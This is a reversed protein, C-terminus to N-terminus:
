VVESSIGSLRMYLIEHGDDSDLTYMPNSGKTYGWVGDAPIQTFKSYFNVFTLDDGEYHEHTYERSDANYTFVNRYVRDLSYLREIGTNFQYGSIGGQIPVHILSTNPTGTAKYVFATLIDEERQYFFGGKDKNTHFRLRNSQVRNIDFPQDKPLLGHDKWVIEFKFSTNAPPFTVNEYIQLVTRLKPNFRVNPDNVIKLGWAEGYTGHNSVSTTYVSGDNRHHTQLLEWEQLDFYVIPAPQCTWITNVDLCVLPYKCSLDNSRETECMEGIARTGRIPRYAERGDDNGYTVLGRSGDDDSGDDDSGLSVVQSSGDDDSGLSV